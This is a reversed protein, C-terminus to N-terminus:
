RPAFGAVESDDDLGIVLAIKAADNMNHRQM